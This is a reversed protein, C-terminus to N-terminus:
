IRRISIRNTVMVTLFIDIIGLIAQCSFFEIFTFVVVFKYLIKHNLQIMIINKINM